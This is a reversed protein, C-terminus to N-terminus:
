RLNRASRLADRLNQKADPRLLFGAKINRVDTRRVQALYHGSSRYLDDRQAETLPRHSGFLFCFSAGSNAGTNIATPATVQSLQIGDRAWAALHSYVAATVHYMPVRSFPPLTCDYETVGGLDRESLPARYVQGQWGSHGAGAVEWRRFVPDDPRRDAGVLAMVDTESADYYMSQYRTSQSAGISLLADIELGGMPDVGTPEILAKAAQAYIDFSLQDLAYEGDATVDLSGYRVPSWERLQDVGVQQASVGIWADGSRTTDEHPPAVCGDSESPAAAWSAAVGAVIRAM